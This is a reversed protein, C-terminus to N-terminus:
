YIHLNMTKATPMTTWELTTTHASSVTVSCSYNGDEQRKSTNCAFNEEVNVTVNTEQIWTDLIAVDCDCKLENGDITLLKRKM